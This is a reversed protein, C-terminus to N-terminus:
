EDNRRSGKTAEKEFRELLSKLKLLQEDTLRSFDRAFLVATEVGADSHKNEGLNVDVVGKSEAEAKVLSQRQEESLGYKEVITDILGYPIPKEGSEISSLYASSIDLRKAMTGLVETSDVRMKRLIKGFANPEKMKTEQQAPLIKLFAARM